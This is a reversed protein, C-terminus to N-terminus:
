AAASPSSSDRRVEERRRGTKDVLVDVIAEQVSACVDPLTQPDTFDLKPLLYLVSTKLGSFSFEFNRGDMM